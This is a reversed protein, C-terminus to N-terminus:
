DPAYATVNITRDRASDYLTVVITRVAFPGDEETTTDAPPAASGTEAAAASSSRTKRKAHRNTSAVAVGGVLAFTLVVALTTAAVLAGPWGRNPPDTLRGLARRQM